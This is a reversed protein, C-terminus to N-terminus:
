KQKIARKKQHALENKEILQNLNITKTQKPIQERIQEKLDYM